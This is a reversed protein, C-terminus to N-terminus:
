PAPEPPKEPPGNTGAPEPKAAAPKGSQEKNSGNNEEKSESIINGSVNDLMTIEDTDLNIRIERAKYEDKAKYVVPMGSLLAIQTERNYDLIESRATIDEKLVRVGVQVKTLNEKNRHVLIGGRLILENEFDELLCNGKLTMIDAERDYFLSQGSILLQKETEKIQISGEAEIYRQSKGLINVSEARIEFSGTSIFVEGKLEVRDNGAASSRHVEKASFRITEAGLSFFCFFLVCFFGIKRFATM